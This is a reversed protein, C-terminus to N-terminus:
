LQELLGLLDDDLSLFHVCDAGALGMAADLSGADGQGVMRSAHLLRVVVARSVRQCERRYRCLSRYQDAGRRVRRELVAQRVTGSRQGDLVWLRDSLRRFRAARRYVTHHLRDGLRVRIWASPQALSAPPVPQAQRARCRSGAAHEHRAERIGSVVRDMGDSLRTNEERGNPLMTPSSGRALCCTLDTAAHFAFNLSRDERKGADALRQASQVAMPQSM